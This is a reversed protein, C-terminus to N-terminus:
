VEDYEDMWEEWEDIDEFEGAWRIAQIGSENEIEKESVPISGSLLKIDVTPFKIQEARPAIYSKKM